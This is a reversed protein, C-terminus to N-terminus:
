HLALKQEHLIDLLPAQEAGGGGLKRAIQSTFADVRRSTDRLDYYQAVEADYGRLAAHYDDAEPYADVATTVSLPLRPKAQPAQDPHGVLLGVLPLTREPLRLARIVSRADGGISGLYVTGLGAAEAALSLNQAALMTDEVGQLFLAARELPELSVGAEARIRANRHLDVVFVLLEGRDGGVYPQGSAQHVIERIAPDHVRIVTTQQYFSSTPAHRAADLLRQLEDEAVPEATFARITRHRLAVALTEDGPRAPTPDTMHTDGSTGAVAADPAIM